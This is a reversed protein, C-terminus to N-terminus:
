RGLSHYQCQQTCRCALYLYCRWLKSNANTFTRSTFPFCCIQFARRYTLFLCVDNWTQLETAGQCCTYTLTHTLSSLTWGDTLCLREVVTPYSSPWSATTSVLHAWASTVLVIMRRDFCLNDGVYACAAGPQWPSSGIVRGGSKNWNAAGVVCSQWM